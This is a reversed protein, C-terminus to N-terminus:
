ESLASKEEVDDNEITSQSGNANKIDIVYIGYKKIIENNVEASLSLKKIIADTCSQSRNLLEKLTHRTYSNGQRDYIRYRFRPNNEGKSTGNLLKTASINHAVKEAWLKNRWRKRNSESVNNLGSQRAHRNNGYYTTWELNSYHNNAKNGNKHNVILTEESNPKELFLSAVLQHARIRVRKGNIELTYQLYGTWTQEGKLFKNAFHSYVRGDEYVDYNGYKVFRMKDGAM